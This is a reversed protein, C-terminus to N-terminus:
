TRRRSALPGAELHACGENRSSGQSEAWRKPRQCSFPAKNRKPWLLTSHGCRRVLHSQRGAPDGAWVWFAPVELDLSSPVPPTQVFIYSVQSAALQLLWEPCFRFTPSPSSLPWSSLPLGSSLSILPLLFPACCRVSVTQRSMHQHSRTRDTYASFPHGWPSLGIGAWFSATLCHKASLRFANRSSPIVLRFDSSLVPTLPSLTLPRHQFGQLEGLLSSIPIM